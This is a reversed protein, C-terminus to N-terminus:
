KLRGGQRGAESFYRTLNDRNGEARYTFGFGENGELLNKMVAPWVLWYDGAYGVVDGPLVADIRKFVTYDRLSVFPQALHVILWAALLASIAYRQWRPLFVTLSRVELSLLMMGVFIVPVFYRFHFLNAAVWSNISFLLIWVGAFVLLMLTFPCTRTYDSSDNEQPLSFAFIKLLCAALFIVVVNGLYVADILNKAVIQVSHNLREFEFSVYSIDRSPYFRAVLAWFIFLVIVLVSFVLSDIDLKRKFLASGGVLVLAPIIISYNVGIAAALCVGTVALRMLLSKKQGFYYFFAVGFLLYSLAYEIHGTAIEFVTAPRAIFFFISILVLFIMRRTLSYESDPFCIRSLRDAWFWIMGYFVGTTILLCAYLNVAPDSIPSCVLPLINALRNQGWYFLTVHQLSMVSNLIVDANLFEPSFRNVTLLSLFVFLTSDITFGPIWKILTTGCKKNM